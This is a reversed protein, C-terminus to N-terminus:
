VPGTIGIVFPRCPLPILKLQYFEHAAVHSKRIRFTNQQYLNSLNGILIIAIEPNLMEMSNPIDCRFGRSLVGGWISAQMRFIKKKETLYPFALYYKEIM